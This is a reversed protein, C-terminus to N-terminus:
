ELVINCIYIQKNKKDTFVCHTFDFTENKSMFMIHFSFLSCKSEKRVM